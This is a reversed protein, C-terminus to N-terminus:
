PARATVVPETWTTTEIPTGDARLAAVEVRAGHVRIRLYHLTSEFSKVAAADAPDPHERRAYTDAGGGGSVFYHVGGTEAREYVHDHGSLVATVRYREFLPRWANRIVEKGGHHSVSFVPHHLAVFAHDILPDARAAALERDLWATEAALADGRANSDLVVFRSRGYTFAYYLEDDTAARGPLEYYARATAIRAGGSRVDHNGFAPYIPTSRILPREVAFLRHWLERRAADEVLDGTSVVFDSSGALVQEVVRRHRDGAQGNDGFVALEFAADDGPALATVLEGTERVGGVELAYRYRTAPRLGRFTARPTAAPADVIAGGAPLGPGEVIVRAPAPPESRWMVTGSTPTVAQLYPGARLEARAPGTLALLLLIPGARRM